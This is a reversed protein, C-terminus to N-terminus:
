WCGATASSAGLGCTQSRRRLRNLELAKASKGSVWRCSPAKSTTRVGGAGLDAFRRLCQSQTAIFKYVQETDIPPSGLNLLGAENLNPLGNAM